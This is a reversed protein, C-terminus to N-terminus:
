ISAQVSNELQYLYAFGLKILGCIAAQPFSSHFKWFDLNRCFKCTKIVWRRLTVVAWEISLIANQFRSWLARPIYLLQHLHSHGLEITGCQLIASANNTSTRNKNSSDCSFNEAAILLTLWCKKTKFKLKLIKLRRPMLRAHWSQGKMPSSYYIPGIVCYILPESIKCPAHM